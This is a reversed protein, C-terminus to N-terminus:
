VVDTTSTAGDGGGGEESGGIGSDSGAAGTNGCDGNAGRSDGQSGGCDANDVGGGGAGDVGGGTSGSATCAAEASAVRSALAHCAMFVSVRKTVKAPAMAHRSPTIENTTRRRLIRRARGNCWRLTSPEAPPRTLEFEASDSCHIFPKASADDSSLVFVGEVPDM